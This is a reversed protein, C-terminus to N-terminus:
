VMVQSAFVQLYEQRRVTSSAHFGAGQAALVLRFPARGRLPPQSMVVSTLTRRGYQSLSGTQQRPNNDVPIVDGFADHSPPLTLQSDMTNIPAIMVIDSTTNNGATVGNYASYARRTTRRDKNEM